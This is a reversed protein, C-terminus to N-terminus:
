NSRACNPSMPCERVRHLLTLVIGGVTEVVVTVTVGVTFSMVGLIVIFVVLPSFVDSADVTMMMRM